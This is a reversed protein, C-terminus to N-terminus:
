MGKMMDSLDAFLEKDSETVKVNTSFTNGEPTTVTVEVVTGEDIGSAKVANIFMPVKPHNAIFKDWAGKIKFLKAPNMM